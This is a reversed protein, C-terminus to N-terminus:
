LPQFDISPGISRGRAFSQAMVQDPRATLSLKKLNTFGNNKAQVDSQTGKHSFGVSVYESCKNQIQGDVAVDPSGPLANALGCSFPRALLWVRIWLSM